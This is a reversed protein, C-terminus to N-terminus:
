EPMKSPDPHLELTLAFGSGAPLRSVGGRRQPPDGARCLGGCEKRIRSGVGPRDTNQQSLATEASLGSQGVLVLHNRRRPGTELSGAAPFWMKDKM